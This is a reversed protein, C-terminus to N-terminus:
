RTMLQLDDACRNSNFVDQTRNMLKNLAKRLADARAKTYIDKAGDAKMAKALSKENDNGRKVFKDLAERIIRNATRLNKLAEKARARRTSKNDSKDHALAEKVADEYYKKARKCFSDSINKNREPIHAASKGTSIELLANYEASLKKHLAEINARAADSLGKGKLAKTAADFMQKYIRTVEAMETEIQWCLIKASQFCPNVLGFIRADAVPKAGGPKKQPTKPRVEDPNAKGDALLRFPWATTLIAALASSHLLLDRRKM